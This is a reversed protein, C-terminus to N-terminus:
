GLFTPSSEISDYVGTLSLIGAEVAQLYHYGATVGINRVAGLSIATNNVTNAVNVSGNVASTTSDLVILGSAATWGTMRIPLSVVLNNSPDGNVFEVRTLGLTTNNRWPRITGSAAAYTHQVSDALFLRRPIQNHLNWVFRQTLTDSCQGANTTRITGVYRSNANASSVYVGDRRTLAVSRATASVWAATSLIVTPSPSVAAPIYTVFVDYNTTAALGALSGTLASTLSVLDWRANTSDYLAIKNGRAPAYYVSTQNVNDAAREPDASDLTLRGEAISLPFAGSLSSIVLHEIATEGLENVRVREVGNTSIAVNNAAPFYFGTNSASSPIIAPAAASGAAVTIVGNVHLASAPQAIGIGVKGGFYNLSTTQVQYIAWHNTITGGTLADGGIFLDYMTTVAGSGRFPQLLLGIVNTTTPTVAASSHHGYSLEVGRLNTLTGADTTPGYNRLSTLNLARALGTNTIGSAINYFQQIQGSMCVYAGTTNTNMVNACYFGTSNADTLSYDARLRIGATAAAGFGAEGTNLVNFQRAGGSSFGLGNAAFYLGTNAAGTLAIGPAAISGLPVTVAGTFTPSATPAAALATRGASADAAALVSRGFATCSIEEIVGAGASSRGLLRDTASVNQLKAYTVASNALKATTVTGDGPAGGGLAAIDALTVKNTVTGAADSVPVVSTGVAAAATFESIKKNAM